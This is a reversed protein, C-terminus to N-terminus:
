QRAAQALMKQPVARRRRGSKGTAEPEPVPRYEGELYHMHSGDWYKDGPTLRPAVSLKSMNTTFPPSTLQDARVISVAGEGMIKMIQYPGCHPRCFKYDPGKAARDSYWFVRLGEKFPMGKSAKKNHADEM